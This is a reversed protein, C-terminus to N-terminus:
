PKVSPSVYGIAEAVRRLVDVKSTQVRSIINYRHEDMWAADANSAELAEKTLWYVAYSGTYTRVHREYPAESESEHAKPVRVENRYGKITWHTASVKTIPWARLERNTSYSAGNTWLLDGVKLVIGEPAEM